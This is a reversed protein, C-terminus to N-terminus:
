FCNMRADIVKTSTWKGGFAEHPLGHATLPTHERIHFSSVGEPARPGQPQRLEAKALWSFTMM